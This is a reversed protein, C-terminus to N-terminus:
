NGSTTRMVRFTLALVACCQVSILTASTHRPRTAPVSHALPRSSRAVRLRTFPSSQPAGPGANTRTRRRGRGACVRAGRRGGAGGAINWM